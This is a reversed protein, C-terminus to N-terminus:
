VAKSFNPSSQSQRQYYADFCSSINRIFLEGKKTVEIKESSMKVMEREQYKKLLAASKRFYPDFSLSFQKEFDRKCIEFRCMLSAIVWKRIKDDESLLCMRNVPLEKKEISAYYSPLDKENQFFHGNVEGIATLGLGILDPAAKLFYGQFNRQLDKNLYGQALPSEKLAFHDMGISVYGSEEFTERANLYIMFKDETSPLDADKIAKQHAKIWPVKAYSFLSIRDPRLSLIDETTQKFSDITQFPLGYILDLNIEKFGLEKAWLFTKKSEEWSQNRKVAKQVKMNSDQVGFSVRNFGMMKLEKLKKGEDEFVTRPDIEISIEQSLDLSFREELAGLIERFESDKLSTPTGGGFHLQTILPKYDLTDALLHIEKILYDVYERQKEAKRNLIVSCACYLCMTKCFPIHFYLSIERKSKGLVKLEKQYLIPNKPEWLNATPYSTYRPVAINLELLEKLSIDDELLSMINEM